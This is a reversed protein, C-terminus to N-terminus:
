AFGYRVFRLILVSVIILKEGSSSLVRTIEEYGPSTPKNLRDTILKSWRNDVSNIDAIFFTVSKRSSFTPAAAKRYCAFKGAYYILM